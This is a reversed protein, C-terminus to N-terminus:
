PTATSGTVWATSRPSVSRRRAATRSARAVSGIGAAFAPHGGDREDGRAGGVAHEQLARKGPRLVRPDADDAHVAGPAVEVRARRGRQESSPGLTTVAHHCQVEAGVVEAGESVPLRADAEDPVQRRVAREVEVRREPHQEVAADLPDDDDGVAVPGVEHRPPEPQVRRRSHGGCHECARRRREREGGAPEYVARDVMVEREGGAGHGLAIGM